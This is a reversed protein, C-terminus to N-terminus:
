HKTPLKIRRDLPDPKIGFLKDLPGRSGVPINKVPKPKRAILKPRDQPPQPRNKPKNSVRNSAAPKGRVAEDEVKAMKLDPVPLQRVRAAVEHALDISKGGADVSAICSEAEPSVLSAVEFKPDFKFELGDKIPMASDSRSSVIGVVQGYEDIVPSGLTNPTINGKVLFGTSTAEYESVETLFIPDESNPGLVGLLHMDDGPAALVPPETAGWLLDFKKGGENPLLYYALIGGENAWVSQTNSVDVRDRWAVPIISKIRIRTLDIGQTVLLNDTLAVAACEFEKGDEAEFVIRISRVIHDALVVDESPVGPALDKSDMYHLGGTIVMTASLIIIPRANNALQDFFDGVISKQGESM